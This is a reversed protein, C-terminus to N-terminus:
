LKKQIAKKQMLKVIILNKTKGRTTVWGEVQNVLIARMHM